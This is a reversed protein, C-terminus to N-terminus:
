READADPEDRGVLAPPEIFFFSTSREVPDGRVRRATM